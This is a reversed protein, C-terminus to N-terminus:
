VGLCSSFITLKTSNTPTHPMLVASFKGDRKESMKQFMYKLDKSIIQESSYPEIIVEQGSGHWQVNSANGLSAM